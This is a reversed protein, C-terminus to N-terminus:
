ARSCSGKCHAVVGELTCLGKAKLLDVGYDRYTEIARILSLLVSIFLSVQM